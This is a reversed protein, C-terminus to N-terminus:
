GTWGRDFKAPSYRHSRPFEQSHIELTSFVTEKDYHQGGSSCLIITRMVLARFARRKGSSRPHALEM